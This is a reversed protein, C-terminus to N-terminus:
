AAARRTKKKLRSIRRRCIDAMKRDRGELAQRRKAKLERIKAKLEGINEARTKVPEAEIGKAERLAAILEEKKMGHVGTIGPVEKAIERLDKVTMKVLPRGWIDIEKSSM